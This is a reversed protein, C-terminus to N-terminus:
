DCDCTVEKIPLCLSIQSCFLLCGSSPLVPLILLHGWALPHQCGGSALFLLSEVMGQLRLFCGTEQCSSKLGTLSM